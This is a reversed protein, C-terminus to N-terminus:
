VTVAYSAFLRGALIAYMLVVMCTAALLFSQLSVNLMARGPAM